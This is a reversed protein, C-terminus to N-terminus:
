VWQGYYLLSVFKVINCNLDCLVSYFVFSYGGIFPVVSLVECSFIYITLLCAFISMRTLLSAEINFPFKKSGFKYM